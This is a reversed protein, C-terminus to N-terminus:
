PGGLYALMLEDYSRSPQEGWLAANRADLRWRALVQQAETKDPTGTSRRTRRGREDTFSAWWYPSDDRRYLGDRDTKRRGM